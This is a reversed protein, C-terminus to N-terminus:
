AAMFRNNWEAYYDESLDKKALLLTRLGEQAYADVYEQTTDM